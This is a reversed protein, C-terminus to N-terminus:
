KIVYSSYKEANKKQFRRLYPCTVKTKLNSKVVFDFAERALLGAVGKGRFADPVETHKLDLVDQSVKDYQLFARDNGIKVYFERKSKDHTVELAQVQSSM